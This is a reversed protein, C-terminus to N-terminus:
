RLRCHRAPCYAKLAPLYYGSDRGYHSASMFDTKLSVGYTLVLNSWAEEEVDGTLLVRRGAHSIRLIYSLDNSKEAANCSYVLAPTRSRLTADTRWYPDGYCCLGLIPALTAHRRVQIRSGVYKDFPKPIEQEHSGVHGAGAMFEDGHELSIPNSKLDNV